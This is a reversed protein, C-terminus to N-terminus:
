LAWYLLHRGEGSSPFLDLKRFATNEPKKFVPRHFFDSLVIIRLRNVRTKVDLVADSIELSGYSPRWAKFPVSHNNDAM